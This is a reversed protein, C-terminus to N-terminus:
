IKVLTNKILKYFNEGLSYFDALHVIFPLNSEDFKERIKEIMDMSAKTKGKILIDLDSNKLFNGNIRSGYMFFVYEQSYPQLIDKIIQSQEESVGNITM